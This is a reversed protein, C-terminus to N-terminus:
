VNGLLEPVSRAQSVIPDKPDWKEDISTLVARQSMRQHDFFSGDSLNKQILAHTQVFLIEYVNEVAVSYVCTYAIM